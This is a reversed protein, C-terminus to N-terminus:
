LFIRLIHLLYLIIYLLLDGKHAISPVSWYGSSKNKVKTLFNFFNVSIPQVWVNFGLGFEKRLEVVNLRKPITPWNHEWCVVWDCNNPNHRHTKFNRSKFEFEIRIRKEMNGIKQYAICDPYSSQIQDVRLRYKKLLNAFLFVVGLENEPAYHLPSENLVEPRIKTHVM